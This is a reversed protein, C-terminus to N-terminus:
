GNDSETLLEVKVGIDAGDLGYVGVGIEDNDALVGFIEVDLLLGGTGELIAGLDSLGDLADRLTGGSADSLNSKLEGQSALSGALLTGLTVVVTGLESDGVLGVNKGLGITKETLGDAGDGLIGAVARNVNFLLNDVGHDVFKEQGRCVVIDNNGRVQVTIDQGITSSSQDARETNNRGGVNTIVKGDTLRAVTGGRINLSTSNGVRNRGHSGNSDHKFEQALRLSSDSNM